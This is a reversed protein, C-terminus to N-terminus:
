KLDKANFSIYGGEKLKYKRKSMTGDKKVQYLEYPIISKSNKFKNVKWYADEVRVGQKNYVKVLIYEPLNQEKQLETLKIDSRKFGKEAIRELEENSQGM